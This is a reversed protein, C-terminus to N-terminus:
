LYRRCGGPCTQRLKGASRSHCYSGEAPRRLDCSSLSALELEDIGLFVVPDNIENFGVSPWVSPFAVLGMAIGPQGHLYKAVAGFLRRQKRRLFHCSGRL